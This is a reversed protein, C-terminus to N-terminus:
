TEPQQHGIEPRQWPTCGWAESRNSTTPKCRSCHLCRLCQADYSAPCENPSPSSSPPVALVSVRTDATAPLAPDPAGTQNQSSATHALRACGQGPMLRADAMQPADASLQYYTLTPTSQQTQTCNCASPRSGDDETFLISAAPPLHANTYRM